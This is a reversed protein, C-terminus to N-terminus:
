VHSGDPHVDDVGYGLTVLTVIAWWMADPITGFKDPQVNREIVHMVSAAILTAGMLIIFCGFLTRRETYIVDLLSSVGASYRTLKLLRVVCFVLVVLLDAPLALAFWFALVALLEVIMRRTGGPTVDSAPLRMATAHFSVRSARRAM